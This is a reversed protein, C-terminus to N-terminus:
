RYLVYCDNFCLNGIEAVTNSGYTSTVCGHASGSNDFLVIVDGKLKPHNKISKQICEELTAMILEKDQQRM